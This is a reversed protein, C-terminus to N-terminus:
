AKPLPILPSNDDFEPGASKGLPIVPSQDDFVVPATVM